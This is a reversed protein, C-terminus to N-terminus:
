APAPGICIDVVYDDLDICSAGPIAACDGEQECTITCRNLRGVGGEVNYCSEADDTCDDDSDCLGGLPVMGNGELYTCAGAASCIMRLPVTLGCGEPTCAPGQGVTM